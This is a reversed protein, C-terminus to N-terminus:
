PATFAHPLGSPKYSKAWAHNPRLRRLHVHSCPFPADSALLKVWFDTHPPSLRSSELYSQSSTKKTMKLKMEYLLPAFGEPSFPLIWFISIDWLVHMLHFCVLIVSHYLTSQYCPQQVTFLHICLIDHSFTLQIAREILIRVDNVWEWTSGFRQSSIEETSCLLLYKSTHQYCFLQQNGSVEMTHFVISHSDTPVLFQTTVWM